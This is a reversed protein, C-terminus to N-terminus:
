GPPMMMVDGVFVAEVVGGDERVYDDHDNGNLTVRIEHRGRQCGSHPM